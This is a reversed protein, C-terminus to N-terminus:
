FHAMHIRVRYAHHLSLPMYCKGAAAHTHKRVCRAIIGYAAFASPYKKPTGAPLKGESHMRVQLCMCPLCPLSARTLPRTGLAGGHVLSGHVCEPLVHESLARSAVAPTLRHTPTVCPWAVCAHTDPVCMCTHTCTRNLARCTHMKCMCRGGMCQTAHIMRERPCTGAQM